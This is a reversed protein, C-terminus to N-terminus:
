NTPKEVRCSGGNELDVGEVLVAAHEPHRRYWTVAYSCSPRITYGNEVAYRTISDLLADAIGKGRLDPHVFTRYLDLVKPSAPATEYDASCEHGDVLCYFRKRVEDHQIPQQM